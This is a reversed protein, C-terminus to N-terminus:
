KRVQFDPFESSKEDYGYCASITNPSNGGFRANVPGFNIDEEEESRSELEEFVKLYLSLGEQELLCERIQNEMEINAPPTSPLNKQICARKIYVALFLILAAVGLYNFVM